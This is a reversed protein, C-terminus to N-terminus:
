THLRHLSLSFKMPVNSENAPRRDAGPGILLNQGGVRRIKAFYEMKTAEGESAQPGYGHHDWKLM